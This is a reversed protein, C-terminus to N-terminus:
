PVAWRVVATVPKKEKLNSLHSKEQLMKVSKHWQRHCESCGPTSCLLNSLLHGTGELLLFGCTHFFGLFPSCSSFVNFNLTLWKSLPNVQEYSLDHSSLAPPKRWGGQYNVQQPNGRDRSSTERWGGRYLLQTKLIIYTQCLVPKSTLFFLFESTQVFKRLVIILYQDTLLSMEPFILSESIFSSGTISCLEM